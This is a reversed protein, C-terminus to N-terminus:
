SREKRITAWMTGAHRIDAQQTSKNGGCLLLYMMRGERAYYVRYGPGCDIRMEFVGNELLKADGFLGREARRIRVLIQAKAKLDTLGRLWRDFEETCNITCVRPTEVQPHNYGRPYPRALSFLTEIFRDM